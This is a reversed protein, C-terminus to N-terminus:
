SPQPADSGVLQKFRPDAALSHFDEDHRAQFRNACRLTVAAKLHELAADANGLLAHAAGLAYRIHEQGPGLREAKGLLEIAQELRRANLAAVGLNYYDESAKPTPAQHRLRQECLRLHVRARDAIERIPGDVLKELIEKARDYNQKQFYRAATEFSKVTAQYQADLRQREALERASLGNRGTAKTGGSRAPQAGRRVASHGRRRSASRSSLTRTGRRARHKRSSRRL